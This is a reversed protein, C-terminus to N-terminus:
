DDDTHWDGVRSCVMAATTVAGRVRAVVMCVAVMCVAVMRVELKYVICVAVGVLAPGGGRHVVRVRRGWRLLSAHSQCLCHLRLCSVKHVQGGAAGMAQSLGEKLGHASGQLTVAVAVAAAATPVSCTSSHYSFSNHAQTQVVVSQVQCLHNHVRKSVSRKQTCM